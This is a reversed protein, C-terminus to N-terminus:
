GMSNCVNKTKQLMEQLNAIDIRFRKDRVPRISLAADFLQRNDTFCELKIQPATKSSDCFIEKLLEALWLNEGATDIQM